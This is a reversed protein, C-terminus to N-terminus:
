CSSCRVTEADAPREIDLYARVTVFFRSSIPVVRQHGGKGDAIFLRREAWRVDALRLGLVESRRLGALLMADIM